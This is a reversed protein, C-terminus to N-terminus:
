AWFASCIPLRRSPPTRPSTRCAPPRTSEAAEAGNARRFDDADKWDGIVDVLRSATDADVQGATQLLSNLLADPVANLDIKGSEDVASAAVRM